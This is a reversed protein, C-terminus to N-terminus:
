TQTPSVYNGPFTGFLGTRECTGVYWGDDCTEVVKVVDGPVLDLEDENSAEYMYLAVYTGIVQGYDVAVPSEPRPSGSQPSVCSSPYSPISPTLPKTAPSLHNNTSASQNLTPLQQNENSLAEVVQDLESLDVFEDKSNPLQSSQRKSEEEALKSAGDLMVVDIVDERHMSPEYSHLTPITNVVSNALFAARQKREREACFSIKIFIHKVNFRM